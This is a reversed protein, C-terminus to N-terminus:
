DNLIAPNASDYHDKAFHVLNLCFSVAEGGGSFLAAQAGSLDGGMVAALVGILLMACFVRNM